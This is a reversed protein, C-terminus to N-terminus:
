NNVSYDVVRWQDNTLGFTLSGSQSQGYVIITGKVTGQNTGNASWTSRDIKVIAGDPLNSTDFAVYPNGKIGNSEISNLATTVGAPMGTSAATPAQSTPAPQTPSSVSGPQSFNGMTNNTLQDSNAIGNPPSDILGTQNTASEAVSEKNTTSSSKIADQYFLYALMALFVPVGIALVVLLSKAKQQLQFKKINQSNASLTEYGM